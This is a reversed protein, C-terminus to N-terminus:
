LTVKLKLKLKMLTTFLTKNITFKFYLMMVSGSFYYHFHPKLDSSTSNLHLMTYYNLLSAEPLDLVTHSVAASPSITQEM